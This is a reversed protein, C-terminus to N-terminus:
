WQTRFGPPKASLCEDVRKKQNTSLTWLTEAKNKNVWGVATKLRKVLEDRSELKTPMTETIRDKLLGWANEIANFDQSAVPYPDHLRLPTKSLSHVALPCRLCSEYDCLLYECSGCWEEFKDEILDSYVLQNMVEGEDLVHVNLVGDALMGWIRVPTGQAKNYSSPGLYVSLTGRQMAM